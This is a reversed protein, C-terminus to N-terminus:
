PHPNPKFYIFYFLNLNGCKQASLCLSFTSLKGSWMVKHPPKLLSLWPATFSLKEKSFELSSIASVRLWNADLCVFPKIEQLYLLCFGKVSNSFSPLSPCPQFLLLFHSLPKVSVRGCQRENSFCFLVFCFVIVKVHLRQSRIEATHQVTSLIKNNWWWALQVRDTEVSAAEGLWKQRLLLKRRWVLGQLFEDLSM